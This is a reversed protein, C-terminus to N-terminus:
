ALATQSPTAGVERAVQAVPGDPGAHGGMAVPFFPVFAIGRGATHEVVAEHDRTALNDAVADPPGVPVALLPEAM